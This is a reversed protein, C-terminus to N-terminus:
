ILFRFFPANVIENKDGVVEKSEIVAATLADIVAIERSSTGLIELACDM